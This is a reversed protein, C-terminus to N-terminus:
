RRDRSSRPGSRWDSRSRRSSSRSSGWAESAGRRESASRSRAGPMSSRSSAARIRPRISSWMSARMSVWTRRSSARRRSDISAVSSGGAVSQAHGVLRPVGEDADKAPADLLGGTSEGELGDLAAAPDVGVHQLVAVEAHGGRAAGDGGHVGAVGGLLAAEDELVAARRHADDLVGGLELLHAADAGRQRAQALHHHQVSRAPVVAEGQGLQLSAARLPVDGIGAGPVGDGGLDPGLVQGTEDVGRAGGPRGLPHQQGVAAEHGHRAGDLLLDHEVVVLLLVQEEGEGVGVALHELQDRHVDPHRRGDVAVDVADEVPQLCLRM